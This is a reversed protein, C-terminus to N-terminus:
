FLSTNAKKPMDMVAKIPYLKLYEDKIYEEGLQDGFMFQLEKLTPIPNKGNLYKM